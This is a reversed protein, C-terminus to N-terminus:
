NLSQCVKLMTDLITYASQRWSFKKFQKKAKKTFILHNKKTLLLSKKMAKFIEESNQPDVLYGAEGVVEPLSSNNAAITITKQEFAELAPIGFGEYLGLQLLATANKILGKKYKEDIYGLQIIQNKFQSDNIKKLIPNALWGIKGALVLQTTKGKKQKKSQNFDCLQEFAEIIRILNKRPQITGLYLFYNSGIKNKKFFKKLQKSTAKKTKSDGISPYAVVINNENQKYHKIIEQKSFNSITIIKKANKVSYRTWNTLQIQDSQKFQDPYELFALDMVSSIYPIPCLRPAYHGPTYFLNYKKSNWFLHIPLAFQTWIKTPKIIKYNWGKRKKPLDTLKKTSLLITFNLDNRKKTIEELQSLVHFAYVNSGVRNKVNAENGDIAINYNKVNQKIKAM